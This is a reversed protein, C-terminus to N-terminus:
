KLEDLDEFQEDIQRLLENARENGMSIRLLRVCERKVYNTQYFKKQSCCFCYIQFANINSIRKMVSDEGSSELDTMVVTNSLIVIKLLLDVMEEESDTICHIDIGYIFDLIYGFIVPDDILDLVVESSSSDSFNGTFLTHFYSCRTSLIIKNCKFKSGDGLIIDINGQGSRRLKELYNRLYVHPLVIENPFTIKEFKQKLNTEIYKIVDEEEKKILYKMLEWNKFMYNLTAGIVFKEDSDKGNKFIKIVNSHNLYNEQLLHCCYNVLPKIKFKKAAMLVLSINSTMKPVNGYLYELVDNFTDPYIDDIVIKGDESILSKLEDCSSIIIKHANFKEGKVIIELDSTENEELLKAFGKSLEENNVSITANKREFEFHLLESSTGKENKGGIYYIGVKGDFTLSGNSFDKIQFDKSKNGHVRIKEWKTTHINYSHIQNFYLKDNYGGFIFIQNEASLMSKHGHVPFPITSNFPTELRKWTLKKLNFEWLDNLLHKSSSVGGFIYMTDNFINATHGYRGSIELEKTTALLMGEKKIEPSITKWSNDIFSFEFITNMTQSSDSQGGYIIMSDTEEFYVATHDKRSHFLDKSQYLTKWTNNELSYECVDSLAKFGGTKGAL